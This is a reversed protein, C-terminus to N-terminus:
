SIPLTHFMKGKAHKQDQHDSTSHREDKNFENKNSTMEMGLIAEEDETAAM